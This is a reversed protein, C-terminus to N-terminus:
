WGAKWGATVLTKWFVDAEQGYIVLPTINLVFQVFVIHAQAVLLEEFGKAAAVIDAIRASFLLQKLASPQELVDQNVLIRHAAVVILLVIIIRVFPLHPTAALPLPPPPHRLRSFPFPLLLGSILARKRREKGGAGGLEEGGEGREKRGENGEEGQEKEPELM